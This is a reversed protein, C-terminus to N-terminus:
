FGELREERHMTLKQQAAQVFLSLPPFPSLPESVFVVCLCVCVCV